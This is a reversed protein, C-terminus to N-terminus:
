TVLFIKKFSADLKNFPIERKNKKLYYNFDHLERIANGEKTSEIIRKQNEQLDVKLLDYINMKGSPSKFRDFVELCARTHTANTQNSRDEFYAPRESIMKLFDEQSLERLNTLHNGMELKGNKVSNQIQNLVVLQGFESYKKGIFETLDNEAFNPSKSTENEIYEFFGDKFIMDCFAKCDLFKPNEHAALSLLINSEKQNLPIGIKQSMREIDESTIQSRVNGTWATFIKAFDKNFYYRRKILSRFDLIKKLNFLQEKTKSSGFGNSVIQTELEANKNLHTKSSRKLQELRKPGKRSEVPEGLGKMSAKDQNIFGFKAQDSNMASYTSMKYTLEKYSEIKMQAKRDKETNAKVESPATVQGHPYVKISKTSRLLPDTTETEKQFSRFNSNGYLHKREIKLAM